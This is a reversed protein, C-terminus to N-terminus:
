ATMRTAKLQAASSGTQVILGDAITKLVSGPAGAGHGEVPDLREILWTEGGIRTQAIPTGRLLNLSTVKRQLVSAPESLDLLSEAETFPAAYSVGEVPQPTGPDGAIARAAGEFLARGLTPFWTGSVAEPTFPNPLPVSAQALINGTDFEGATWHLTAGIQPAGEYFQRLVNPGRYAPLLTPHLNIAGLRASKLLGPPLLWPFTASVILDPKLAQVIPTAISKMRTTSLLEINKEGAIAAIQKYGESRRTKPGASTVVLVLTHGNQEIWRCVLDFAGPLNNFSIIRLSEPM